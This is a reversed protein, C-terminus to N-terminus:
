YLCVEVMCGFKPQIPPFRFVYYLTPHFYESVWSIGAALYQNKYYYACVGVVISVATTMM